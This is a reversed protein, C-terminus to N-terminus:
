MCKGFNDCIVMYNVFDKGFRQQLLCIFVNENSKEHTCSFCHIQWNLLRKSDLQINLFLSLDSFNINKQRYTTDRNLIKPPFRPHLKLHFYMTIYKGCLNEVKGSWLFTVCYIWILFGFIDYDCSSFWHLKFYLM